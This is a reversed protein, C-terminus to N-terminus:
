KAGFMVRCMRYIQVGPNSLNSDDHIWLFLTVNLDKCSVSIQLLAKQIDATFATRHLRFKLLLKPVLNPNQLLCDNLSKQNKDKSMMCWVCSQLVTIRELCQETLYIIFGKEKLHM